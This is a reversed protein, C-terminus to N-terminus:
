KALEKKKLRKTYKGRLYNLKARRVKIQKKIVIKAITPANLPFIKEVGIGESVKRVTITAGKENGHKRAIVLGEFYQLREKEEGKANTEKIKQYVRITMGPEIDAKDIIAEKEVKNKTSTKTSATKKDATDETAIDAAIKKDESM